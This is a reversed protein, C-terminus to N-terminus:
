DDNENIRFMSIQLIATREFSRDNPRLFQKETMMQCPKGPVFFYLFINCLINPHMNLAILFMVFKVPWSNERFTLYIKM